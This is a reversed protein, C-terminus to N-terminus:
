LLPLHFPCTNHLSPITFGYNREKLCQILKQGTEAIHPCDFINESELVYEGDHLAIITGNRVERL